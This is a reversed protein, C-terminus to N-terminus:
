SSGWAEYSYPLRSLIRRVMPEFTELPLTDYNPDFSEGDWRECFRVTREFCPHGRFKDSHGAMFEGHMAIMWHNEPSVYPRLLEAVVAAHNETTFYDAADHFLACV